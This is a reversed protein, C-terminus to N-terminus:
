WKLTLIRKIGNVFDLLKDESIDQSVCLDLLEDLPIVESFSYFVTDPHKKAVKNIYSEYIRGNSMLEIIGFAKSWIMLERACETRIHEGIAQSIKCIAGDPFDNKKLSDDIFSKPFVLNATIMYDIIRNYSIIEDDNLYDKIKM